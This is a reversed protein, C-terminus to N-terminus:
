VEKPEPRPAPRIGLERLQEPAVEAPAGTLPDQLNVYADFGPLIPNGPIQATLHMMGADAAPTQWCCVGVLVAWYCRRVFISM